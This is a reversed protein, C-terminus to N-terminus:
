VLPYIPKSKRYIAVDPHTAPYQGRDKEVTHTNMRGFPYRLICESPDVNVRKGKSNVPKKRSLEACVNALDVEALPCM